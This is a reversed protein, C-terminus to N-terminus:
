PRRDSGRAPKRGSREPDGGVSRAPTERARLSSRAIADRLRGLRDLRRSLGAARLRVDDGVADVYGVFHIVVRDADRSEAEFKALADRMEAANINRFDLVEFGDRRYADVTASVQGSAPRIRDHTQYRTNTMVLAVDKALVTEGMLSAALGVMAAIRTIKM